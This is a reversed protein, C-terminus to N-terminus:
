RIEANDWKFLSILIIWFSMEAATCHLPCDTIVLIMFAGITALLVLGSTSFDFKLLWKIFFVLPTIIALLLGVIGNEIIKQILESHPTDWAMDGLDSSQYFSFVNPFSSSGWGFLPKLEVIDVSDILLARRQSITMSNENSSDVVLMEDKNNASDIFIFVSISLLTAALVAYCISPVVVISTFANRMNRAYRSTWHRSMNNHTPVTDITLLVCAFGAVAMALIKELPTGCYIISLFLVLAVALAFFRLSYAFTFIRFRQASYLAVTLAAGLWILAFAAWWSKDPFTFFSGSGFTPLNEFGKVSIIAEYFFGVVAIGAAILSCFFLLRRLIYRSDTVFYISLACAACALTTLDPIVAPLFGGAASSILDSNDKALSFYERSGINVTSITPSSLGILTIILSAVYPSVALLYYRLTHPDADIWMRKYIFVNIPAVIGLAIFIGTIFDSSGGFFIAPLAFMLLVNGILLRESGHKTNKIIVEEDLM